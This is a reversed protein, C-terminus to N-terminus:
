RYRLHFNIIRRILGHNFTLGAFPVVNLSIVHTTDDPIYDRDDLYATIEYTINDRLEHTNEYHKRNEWNLIDVSEFQNVPFYEYYPYGSIFDYWMRKLTNRVDLRLTETVEINYILSYYYLIIDATFDLMDHVPM